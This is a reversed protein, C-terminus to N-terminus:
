LYFSRYFNCILFSVIFNPLIRLAALKEIGFGAAAYVTLSLCAMGTQYNRIDFIVGSQLFNTLKDVLVVNHVELSAIIARSHYTILLLMLLNVLGKLSIEDVNKGSLFSHHAKDHPEVTLPLGLNIL